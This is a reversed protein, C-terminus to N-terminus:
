NLSKLVECIKNYVTATTNKETETAKELSKQDIKISVSSKDEEDKKDKIEIKIKAM